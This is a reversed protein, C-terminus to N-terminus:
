LFPGGALVEFSQGTLDFELGTERQRDFGNVTIDYKKGGPLVRIHGDGVAEKRDRLVAFQFNPTEFAPSMVRRWQQLFHLVLYQRDERFRVVEVRIHLLN